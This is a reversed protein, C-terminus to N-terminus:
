SRVTRKTGCIATEEKAPDYRLNVWGDLVECSLLNIEMVGEVLGYKANQSAKLNPPRVTWGAGPEGSVGYCARGLHGM